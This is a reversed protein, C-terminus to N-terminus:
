YISRIRGTLRDFLIVDVVEDKDYIKARIFRGYKGELQVGLGKKHYYDILAKKAQEHTMPSDCVGYKSCIPCIDGYPTVYKKYHWAFVSVPILIIIGTYILINRAKM